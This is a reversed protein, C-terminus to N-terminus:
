FCEGVNMKYVDFFQPDRVNSGYYMSKKNESWGYFSAKEKEGPTLDQSTGDAKLLYVHSIENGGKDASYLIENTGPVYDVGFYSEKGSDTIARQEGTALDIEYLNYIGSENSNVLLKTENNSFAGGGVQKNKYFQEWLLMGCLLIFTYKTKM